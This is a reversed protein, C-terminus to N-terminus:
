NRRRLGRHTIEFTEVAIASQSAALEPGTWKSPFGDIFDWEASDGGNDSWIRVTGSRLSVRGASTEAFWNWLERGAVGRKLVLPSQITRGPFVQQFDNLGGEWQKHVEIEIQLGSCDSFGAVPLGDISVEFRFAVLPDHRATM